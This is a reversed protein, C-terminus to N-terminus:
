ASMCVQPPQHLDLASRPGARAAWSDAHTCSVGALPGTLSLLTLHDYFRNLPWHGAGQVTQGGWDVAAACFHQPWPPCPQGGSAALSHASAATSVCALVAAPSAAQAPAAMCGAGAAPAAATCGVTRVGACGIAAVSGGATCSAPSRGSRGASGAYALLWGAACCMLSCPAACGAPWCLCGVTSVGDVLMDAACRVSGSRLVAELAPEARGPACSIRVAVAARVSAVGLLARKQAFASSCCPVCAVEASSCCCCCWCCCCGPSASRCPPAAGILVACGVLELKSSCLASAAEGAACCRCSRGADASGCAAPGTGTATASLTPSARPMCVRCRAAALRQRLHRRVETLPLPDSSSGPTCLRCVLTGGCRTSGSQVLEESACDLCCPAAAASLADASTDGGGAARKGPRQLASAQMEESVRCYQRAAGQSACPARAASICCCDPM